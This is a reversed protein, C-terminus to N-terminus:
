QHIGRGHIGQPGCTQGSQHFLPDVPCGKQRQDARERFSHAPPTLAHATIDATERPAQM